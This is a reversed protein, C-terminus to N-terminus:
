LAKISADQLNTLDADNEKWKEIIQPASQNEQVLHPAVKCWLDVACGLVHVVWHALERPSENLIRGLHQM